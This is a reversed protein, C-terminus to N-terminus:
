DGDPIEGLTARYFRTFWQVSLAFGSRVTASKKSIRDGDAM